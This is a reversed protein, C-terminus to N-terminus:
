QQLPWLPREPPTPRSEMATQRPPALSRQPSPARGQPPPQLVDLRGVDQQAGAERGLDRVHPQGLQLLVVVQREAGGGAGERPGGGLQEHAVAAGLLHGGARSPVARERGSGLSSACDGRRLWMSLDLQFLEARGANTRTTQPVGEPAVGAQWAQGQSPSGPPFHDGGQGRRLLRHLAAAARAAPQNGSERHPRLGDCGPRGLQPHWRM